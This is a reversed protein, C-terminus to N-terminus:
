LNCLASISQRQWKAAPLEPVEAIPGPWGRASQLREWGVWPPAPASPARHPLLVGSLWQLCCVRLGSSLAGSSPSGMIVGFPAWARPVTPWMRGSCEEVGYEELAPFVFRDAAWTGADYSKTWGTNIFYKWGPELITDGLKNSQLSWWFSMQAHMRTHM